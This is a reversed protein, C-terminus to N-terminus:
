ECGGFRILNNQDDIDVDTHWEEIQDSLSLSLGYGERAVHKSSFDPCQSRMYV